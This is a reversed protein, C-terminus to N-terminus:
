QQAFNWDFIVSFFQLNHIFSSAPPPPSSCCCGILTRKQKKRTRWFCSTQQTKISRPAEFNSNPSSQQRWCGNNRKWRIWRCITKTLFTDEWWMEREKRRRRRGITCVCLFAWVRVHALERERLSECVSMGLSLCFVCFCFGLCKEKFIERERERVSM